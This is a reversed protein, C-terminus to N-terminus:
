QERLPVHRIGTSVLSLAWPGPGLRQVERELRQWHRQLLAIQDYPSLDKKGAFWVASDRRVSSRWSQRVPASAGTAISSL